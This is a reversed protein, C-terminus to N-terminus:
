GSWIEFVVTTNPNVAPTANRAGFPTITRLPMGPAYRASGIERSLRSDLIQRSTQALVEGARSGSTLRAISM